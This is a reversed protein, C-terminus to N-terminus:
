NKIKMEKPESYLTDVKRRMEDRMQRMEEKESKLDKEFSFILREIGEQLAWANTNLVAALHRAERLSFPNGKKGTFEKEEDLPVSLRGAALRIAKDANRLFWMLSHETM